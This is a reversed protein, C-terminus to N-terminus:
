IVPANVSYISYVPYLTHQREARSVILICMILLHSFSPLKSLGLLLFHILQFFFFWAWINWTNIKSLLFSYFEAGPPPPSGEATAHGPLSVTVIRLLRAYLIWKFIIHDKGWDLTANEQLLYLVLCRSTTGRAFMNLVWKNSRSFYPSDCMNM